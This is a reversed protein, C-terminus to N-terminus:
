PSSAGILGTTQKEECRRKASQVLEPYTDRFFHEDTTGASVAITNWPVYTPEWQDPGFDQGFLDFQVYGIGRFFDFYEDRSYGFYKAAVGRGNEFVLVPRHRLLSKRAGRLADLEAGEIDLKCFRWRDLTSAPLSDITTVPVTLHEVDPNSVHGSVDRDRLGSLGEGNKIWAFQAKGPASSVAQGHLEIQTLKRRAIEEKLENILSPIAEFAHVRGSKGVIEAMPFTHWGKHAGCDVATDGPRLIAEYCCAVLKEFLQETHELTFLAMVEDSHLFTV